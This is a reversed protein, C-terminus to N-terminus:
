EITTTATAEVRDDHLLDGASDVPTYTVTFEIESGKQYAFNDGWTFSQGSGLTYIPPDQLTGPEIGHQNVGQAEFLSSDSSGDMGQAWKWDAYRPSVDVLSSGLDIPDGNNTVVYNVFVLEDGQKLIPENTEPDVFMGDKPAEATGVQYIEVTLDGAEVTTLLDGPTKAPRAWEPQDGADADPEEATTPEEDAPSESSEAPESSETSETTEATTTSESSEDSDDDSGCATLFLAPVLAASVAAVSLRKRRLM